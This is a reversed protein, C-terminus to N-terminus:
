ELRPRDTSLPFSVRVATGAQRRMELRGHLQDVLAVILQMGFSEATEPAVSLPLGVGDDSVCIFAESESVPALEVLIRGRDRGQFAHKLCNSVLENVLLGCPVAADIPLRVEHVDVELCIRDISVHYSRFLYNALSEIYDKFDVREFDQSRYLREHVLAMSRVRHQSERFLEVSAPDSTHQSQLHLLSSIVQLNNKVRHHVEMLLIEREVLAAQIAIEAQKRETIDVDVGLMRVPRGHPDYFAQGKTATWRVSGDSRIMRFEVRYPKRHQLAENLAAAIQQRDDPHVLAQFADFTGGFTGPTLGLYSELNDSWVVKGAAIDWDWTSVQAAEMALRMREESLRLQEEALIRETVDRGVSQIETLKGSADFFGRNVFEMWRVRNETNFVRNEVRVVPHEPSLKALHAEIAPIDDPHAVPVWRQGIIEDATKGFTRCYVENVFLFTGDARLRSVVETQDEVVARYREESERLRTEATRRDAAERLLNSNLDTLQATRERVKLELEDHAQRIAEQAQKVETISTHAVAAGLRSESLPTAHLLFWRKETASHCPYEASFERLSGDLVRKLGDMIREVQEGDRGIADRCVNLYNVGVCSRAVGDRTNALAFREWAANVSVINGHGDLVAIHASIANLISRALEESARLAAEAETRETIDIITALVFNGEATTIPQLGIEVPFVSGDKRRGYLEGGRGMRRPHPAASFAARDIVHLERFSDPVLVEVPQGILECPHYGFSEGVQANALCITGNQTVMVIATPAAEVVHRFQEESQRRETLDRTIKSFGRLAGSEDRLATTVVSAWFRSGDKRVRWGEVESRGETEATRLDRDPQGARVDEAPYFLSCHQGIVEEARYGEIREARPNWTAVHGRPDLVFIAYDTVNEVLLRFLEADSEKWTPQERKPM